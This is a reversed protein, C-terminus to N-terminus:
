GPPPRLRHHARVTFVMLPLWRGRLPGHVPLLCSGVCAKERRRPPDPRAPPQWAPSPAINRRSRRYRRAARESGSRPGAAPSHPSGPGPRCRAPSRRRRGELPLREGDVIRRDAAVVREIAAGIIREPMLQVVRIPRMQRRLVTTEPRQMPADGQRAACRPARMPRAAVAIQAEAVLPPAHDGSERPCAKESFRYGGGILDPAPKKPIM